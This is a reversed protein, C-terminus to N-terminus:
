PPRNNLVALDNENDVGILEGTYISGDSLTITIEDAGSVVHANTLIYGSKSIIIGSGTGQTPLVELFSNLSVTVTTINVVSRNAGEYIAINRMEDASYTFDNLSGLFM